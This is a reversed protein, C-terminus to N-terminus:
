HRRRLRRARATQLESRRQAIRAELPEPQPQTQTEPRGTTEDGRDIHVSALILATLLIMQLVPNHIVGALDAFAALMIPAQGRIVGGTINTQMTIQLLKKM